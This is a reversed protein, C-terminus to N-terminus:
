KVETIELWEPDRPVPGKLDVSWLTDDNADRTFGHREYLDRVPANKKTPVIRGRLKRAGTEAAHRATRALVATEVTRGIVRCSMLFTEISLDEGDRQAMVLATIGHDGFRDAVQVTRVWWAPDSMRAAVDAESYRITTANFQNTKQTMQAARALSAQTVPAITVTMKLDRYFDEIPMDSNRLAEAEDRRRYLEARQLDEASLSLTDFLGDALLVDVFLEPQEPLCIVRVAPLVEQIRACEVPNDDVFVLADLGINLTKAIRALSESKEHWGIELASFDQKRLLMAKNSEFVEDVDPPNNKSALALIVGRQRLDQIARQFAVYASGPYETGLAVGHPGLEGVVGGWLTGDMDLVLCKSAKGALARIYRVHLKAIEGLAAGAIPQRAFLEMRKDQWARMGIHSALRAIDVTYAGPATRAHAAIQENVRQIAADQGIGVRGDAIGLSAFRPPVLNHVLLVARSHKRFTDVLTKIEAVAADVVEPERGMGQQLYDQYLAPAWRGGEVALIVIDPAFSYLASQPNIIEQRYQDFGAVQCEIRVGEAFSQAILVDALFDITFSSLLAVRMVPADGKPLDRLKSSVFKVDRLKGERLLVRAYRSAAPMDNDALATSFGQRAADQSIPEFTM